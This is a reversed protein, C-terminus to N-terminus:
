VLFFQLFLTISTPCIYYIVLSLHNFKWPIQFYQDQSIRVWFLWFRCSNSTNNVQTNLRVWFQIAHVPKSVWAAKVIHCLEDITTVPTHTVSVMRWIREIRSLDPYQAPQSLQQVNETDLFTRVIRDHMTSVSCKVPNLWLDWCFLFRVAVTWLEMLTFLLHCFLTDLLAGYWWELHHVLIVLDFRRCEFAIEMIGYLTPAVKVSSGVDVSYM